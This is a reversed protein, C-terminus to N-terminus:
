GVGAATMYGIVLAAIVATALWSLITLRWSNALLGLATYLPVFVMGIAINLV